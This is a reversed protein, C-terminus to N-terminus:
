ADENLLDRLATMALQDGSAAGLRFQQRAGTLDGRRALLIGLNHHCHSDGVAIGCRYAAEAAEYDSLEDIYLNGLPLWAEREGLKAGRELVRRAEVARGTACLLDALDARAPPYHEAGIRLAPEVAPDLTNNWDWSALVGPAQPNGAALARQALGNATDREGRERLLIALALAGSSDGVADAARYADEAGKLDGLEELVHGLNLWADTEGADVAQEFAAAAEVLRNQSKLTNGLNFSVWTEGLEVARRFCREADILREADALDCGLDTLERPDQCSDVAALRKELDDV